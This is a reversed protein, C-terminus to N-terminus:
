MEQELTIIAYDPQGGKFVIEITGQHNGYKRMLRETFADEDEGLRYEATCYLSYEKRLGYIWTEEWKWFLNRTTATWFMENTMNTSNDFLPAKGFTM